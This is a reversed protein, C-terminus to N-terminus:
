ALVMRRRRWHAVKLRRMLYAALFLLSLTTIM